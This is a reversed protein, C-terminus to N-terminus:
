IGVKVLLPATGGLGGDAAQETIECVRRRQQEAPVVGL